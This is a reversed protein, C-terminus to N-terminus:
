SYTLTEMLARRVVVSGHKLHELRDLLPQLLGINRLYHYYIPFQGLHWLAVM